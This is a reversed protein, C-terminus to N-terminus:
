GILPPSTVAVPENTEANLATRILPGYIDRASHPSHWGARLKSRPLRSLRMTM